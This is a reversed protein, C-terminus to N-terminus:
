AEGLSQLDSESFAEILPLLLTITTGRGEESEVKVQGGLEQVYQFSEYAGIGMGATKTTQFPRFLREQVFSATMGSGCDGVEVRAHSGYRDVRLWVRQEPTTADLANSVLHGIVREMRQAHGRTAVHPEVYTELYRGRGTVGGVISDVIRGLDVGVIGGSPPSGERLQMMLQRMRDLSNEVTMLMDAQFEPNSGLRKANKMMLSLQTVINKLDHVVFASMRSFAEFKRAELLAETAQMQALYSAAQRGAAKLLDNVEWNVDLESRPRALVVFGLLREGAWLPSLLWAQAQRQLWTPIILHQYREPTASWEKLNVVWGTARMFEILSSGKPEVDSIPPWNWRAAQRFQNEEPRCIWLAGAPSDVLDAMGRIVRLGMDQPAGETSLNHTFKIWEERYDYRYPLFHKTLWVKLRSRLAGSLLLALLLVAALFVLAFQVARGWEGGFYRVYYGVLSIFLLYVGVMALTATHFVARHSVRIKNMWNRHRSASLLLFPMLAAHVLGRVQVSDADLGGFLAARAYLHLDFLFIGALGLFVPKASWIADDPLNRVIQEVLLLGYVTVLMMAVSWAGYRWGGAPLDAISATFLAVAAAIPLILAGRLLWRRFGQESKLFDGSRLLLAMFVFWAAYRALDALMAFWWLVPQSESAWVLGAWVATLVAAAVAVKGTLRGDGQGGRWILYVALGSYVMAALAYGWLILTNDVNSM